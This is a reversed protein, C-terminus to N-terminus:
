RRWLRGPVSLGAVALTGGVIAVTGFAINLNQHDPLSPDGAPTAEFVLYENLALGGFVAALVAGSVATGIRGAPWDLKGKWKRMTALPPEACSPVFPQSASRLRVGEASVVDYPRRAGVRLLMWNLEATGDGTDSLDLWLARDYTGLLNTLDFDQLKGADALPGLAGTPLPELGQDALWAAPPLRSGPVEFARVSSFIAEADLWAPPTLRVPLAVFPVPREAEELRRSLLVSVQFNPTTLPDDTVITWETADAPVADRLVRRRAERHIEPPAGIVCLCELTEHTYIRDDRQIVSAIDEIAADKDRLRNAIDACIATPSAHATAAALLFALM